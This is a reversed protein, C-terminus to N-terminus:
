FIFIQINGYNLFDLIMESIFSYHEYISVIEDM